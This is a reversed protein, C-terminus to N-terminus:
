ILHRIADYPTKNIARETEEETLGAGLAVTRARKEDMLNGPAHADSNVITKAGAERAFVAVRGNTINHGNRGSIELIVDNSAAAEAEEITILGPHALVDIDPNGAAALNTGRMVPETVTEGHVVIWQAGLKRARRAIEAIKSPPVHTIEVGPIVPIYDGKLEVAKVINSVVFDVNTVDVHDTIAIADHGLDMARRVLESPILEGDSFITHTHLDIRM